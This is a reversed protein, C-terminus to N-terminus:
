ILLDGLAEKKTMYRYRIEDQQDEIEDIFKREDKNNSRANNIAINHVSQILERNFNYREQDSKSFKKASM